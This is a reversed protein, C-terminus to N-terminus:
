TPLKAVGAELDLHAGVPALFDMGLLGDIPGAFPLTHALVPFGSRQVGISQFWSILVRPIVLLGSGTTIHVQDQSHAVDIGITELAEIPLITYTSGTDVLLQLITVRSPGKIAAKTLYLRGSKHLHYRRM